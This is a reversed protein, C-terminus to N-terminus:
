LTVLGIGVERHGNLALAAEVASQTFRRRKTPKAIFDPPMVLAALVLSEVVRMSQLNEVHDRVLVHDFSDVKLRHAFLNRIKALTELERAFSPTVFGMAEVLAVKNGFTGLPGRGPAFLRNDLGDDQGESIGPLNSRLLDTLADDIHAGCVIAVTRDDAEEGEAMDIMLNMEDIALPRLTRKKKPM